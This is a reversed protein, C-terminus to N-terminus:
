VSTRLSLTTAQELSQSQNGGSPQCFEIAERVLESISRGTREALERLRADQEKRITRPVVKDKYGVFKMKGYPGVPLGRKDVDALYADLMKRLADSESTLSKKAAERLKKAQESTMSVYVTTYNQRSSYKKSRRDFRDLPTNNLTRPEVNLARPRARGQVKM